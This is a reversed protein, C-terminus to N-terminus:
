ITVTESFASYRSKSATIISVDSITTRLLLQSPSIKSQSTEGFPDHSKATAPFDSRIAPNLFSRSIAAPVVIHLCIMHLSGNSFACNGLTINM